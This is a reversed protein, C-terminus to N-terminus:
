DSCKCEKNVQNNPFRKWDIASDCCKASSEPEFADRQIEIDAVEDLLMLRFNEGTADNEKLGSESPGGTQYVRFYVNEKDESGFGIAHPNGKRFREEDKYKFKIAHRRNIAENIATRKQTRNM